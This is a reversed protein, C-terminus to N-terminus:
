NSHSRGEVLYWMGRSLRGVELNQFGDEISGCVSQGVEM